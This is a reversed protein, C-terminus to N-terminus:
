NHMQMIKSYIEICQKAMNDSSYQTIDIKEINKQYFNINELVKIVGKTFSKVDGINVFEGVSSNIIEKIAGTNTAVFPKKYMIGELINKGMSEYYSASIVVDSAYIYPEINKKFGLFFVYENLFNEQVLRKIENFFKNDENKGVIMLKVKYQMNVLEKLSKIVIDLGKIKEIRGISLLLFEDDKIKYQQRIKQRIFSKEKELCINYKVSDYIVKIKREEIKFDEVIIKKVKKSVAIIFDYGNYLIRNIYKKIGTKRYIVNRTLVSKISLLKTSFLCLWYFIPSHVDVVDIKEKALIIFIKIFAFIDLDFTPKINYIKIKDRLLYNIRSTPLCVLIVKHGMKLYEECCFYVRECGGSWYPTGDFLAINM